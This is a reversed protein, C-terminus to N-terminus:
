EDITFEKEAASTNEASEDGSNEKKNGNLSNEAVLTHSEGCVGSEVPAECTTFEQKGKSQKVILEFKEKAKVAKGPTVNMLIIITGTVKVTFEGILTGTCTITVAAPKILIGIDGKSILVPVTSGESAIEGAAAGSTKCKGGVASCEKFKLTLTGSKEGTFSGSNTDKKCEISAFAGEEELKGKGSTGEFKNPFASLVKPAEAASAMSTVLGTFAFVAVLALGLLTVKRM